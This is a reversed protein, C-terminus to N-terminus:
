EKSRSMLNPNNNILEILRQRVNELHEKMRKAAKEGDREFLADAIRSHEGITLEINKVSHTSLVRERYTLDNLSEMFALLRKNHIHKKLMEHFMVENELFKEYDREEVAQSSVEMINKLQEMDEETLASAAQRAARTEVIERAEFLDRIDQETIESVFYGVRPRVDLLGETALRLFAERVPTRSVELKETFEEIHLQEGPKFDLNMISKKLYQYTWDTLASPKGKPAKEM